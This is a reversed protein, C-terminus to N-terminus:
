QSECFDRLTKQFSHSPRTETVFVVRKFKDGEHLVRLLHVISLSWNTPQRVQFPNCWNGPPNLIAKPFTTRFKAIGDDSFTYEYTVPGGKREVIIGKPRFIM